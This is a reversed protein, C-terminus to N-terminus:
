VLWGSTLEAQSVGILILQADGVTVVVDAGVQEVSYTEGPALRVVDGDARSFDMVRDAGSASFVFFVDAGAGGTLTDDGRDGTLFDDGDRGFLVDNSQGGLLTDDGLDGYTTDAGLNGVIYDDNQGGVLLDSGQGGVVWDNGRGGHLTDDGMNGHMNDFDDGGFLSDEGAGGRLFDEGGGGSITDHGDTGLHTDSADTGVVPPAPSPEPPPPDAADAVTIRLERYAYLDGDTAFVLVQYEGNGDSDVASDADPPSKFRLDGTNPDITFFSIDAGGSLGYTLTTGPDEDTAQLRTVAASGDEVVIANQGAFRPAHGVYTLEVSYGAGNPGGIDLFTLGVPVNYLQATEGSGYFAAWWNGSSDRVSISTAGPARVRYYAGESEFKFWDRDLPAQIIGTVPPGDPLIQATTNVDGPVDDEVVTVQYSVETEAEGQSATIVVDYVNDGGADQPAGASPPSVFFLSPATSGSEVILRFREADAGGTIKYNVTGPVAELAYVGTVAVDTNEPMAISYSTGNPFFPADLSTARLSYAGASYGSVDLYFTGVPVIATLVIATGGSTAQLMEGSANRLTIQGGGTLEIWLRNGTGEFRFWDSDGASDIDGSVPTGDTLVQSTTAVSGKHDDAVVSIAYSVDTEAAGQSATIVVEYVNDAGVDQPADASPPSVFQLIPAQNLPQAVLAFKSADAGGTIAYSVPGEVANLAFPRVIAGATEEPFELEYSTGNPFYPAELRTTSLTYAGPTGSVNLYFTGPPVIQSFISGSGGGLMRGSSDLYAYQSVGTLEIWYRNGTGELRFWDHDGSTDIVGSIAAGDALVGTTSQDASFDDM